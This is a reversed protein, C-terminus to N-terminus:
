AARAAPAPAPEDRDAEQQERVLAAYPGGRAMLAAHTGREVIRGGDMVLILDADRVTSLRHAIM